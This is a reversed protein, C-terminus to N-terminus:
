NVWHGYGGVKLQLGTRDVLAAHSYVVMEGVSKEVLNLRKGVGGDRGDRDGGGEETSESNQVRHTTFVSLTCVEPCHRAEKDGGGLIYLGSLFSNYM